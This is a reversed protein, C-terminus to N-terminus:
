LDRLELVEITARSQTLLDTHAQRRHDDRYRGFATTSPFWLLHVETLRDVTALRRDLRGGHEILLPLVRREYEAFQDAGRPDLRAVMLYSVGDDAV